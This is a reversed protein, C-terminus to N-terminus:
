NQKCNIKVINTTMLRFLETL